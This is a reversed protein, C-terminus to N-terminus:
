GYRDLLARAEQVASPENGLAGAGAVGGLEFQLKRQPNQRHEV